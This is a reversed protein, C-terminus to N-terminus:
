GAAGVRQRQQGGAHQQQQETTSASAGPRRQREARDAPKQQERGAGPGLDPRERDLAEVWGDVGAAEEVDVAAGDALVTLDVGADTFVYYPAALEELWFGTKKGTDGLQDHSTIVMLVKM